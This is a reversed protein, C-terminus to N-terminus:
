RPLMSSSIPCRIRRSCRCRHRARTASMPLRAPSVADAHGSPRWAAETITSCRLSPIRSSSCSRHRESVRRLAPLDGLRDLRRRGDRHRAQGEPFQRSPRPRDRRDLAGAPGRNGSARTRHRARRRRADRLALDASRAQAHAGAMEGARGRGFAREPAGRDAPVSRRPRRCGRGGDRDRVPRGSVPVGRISQSLDDIRPSLIAAPQLRRITGNEMARIVMEVEVSRGLLLAPLTAKRRLM